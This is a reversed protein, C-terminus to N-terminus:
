NASVTSPHCRVREPYGGAGGSSDPRKPNGPDNGALASISGNDAVAKDRSPPSIEELVVTERIGILRAGQARDAGIM